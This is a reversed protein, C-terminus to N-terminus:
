ASALYAALLDRASELDKRNVMETVTHIYRTPVSITISKSGSAARQIAAADTGGRPLISRQCAIKKKLALDEFERVLEHNSISASDMMTIAVGDGQKTVRETESVGPTDCALTVDIGIGVDPQVTFASTQAGRLGVEEQVTFVCHVEAAHGNKKTSQDLKRVSEIGLWCAVRNDMAKSVLSEGVEEFPEHMVVMDGINVRKKVEDAPMGLDIYFEAIEPVKKRDEPSAIHVPKGGPNMAGVFDGHETCVLARRSFLNRTDFGGAANLWLYGDSDIHRVYFGIEDMHCALMVKTAKRRSRSGKGGGSGGKGKTPRRVCILSGLPDTTVEDFLGDIEEEIAARVREERGPIGPTECLRRLLEVNLM